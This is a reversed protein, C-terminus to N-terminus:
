SKFSYTIGIRIIAMIKTRMAILMQHDDFLFSITVLAVAYYLGGFAEGWGVCGFALLYPPTYVKLIESFNGNISERLPCL